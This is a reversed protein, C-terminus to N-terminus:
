ETAVTRGGRSGVEGTLWVMASPDIVKARQRLITSVARQAYAFTTRYDAIRRFAALGAEHSYGGHALMAGAANVENDAFESTYIKM